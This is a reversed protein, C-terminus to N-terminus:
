RKRLRRLARKLKMFLQQYIVLSRMLIQINQEIAARDKELGDIVSQVENQQQQLNSLEQKEENITAYIPMGLLSIVVAAVLCLSTGRKFIKKRM